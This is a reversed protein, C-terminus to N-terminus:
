MTIPEAGPPQYACHAFNCRVGEPHILKACPVQGQYRRFLLAALLGGAPPALLYVWLSNFVGGFLAPGISRAPNLSTSSLPAEIVVVTAVLLGAALPTFRMLNPRSVFHLILTVLLFTLTLEAAFAGAAGWDGPISAGDHVTRAWNGWTALVVGAGIVAGTIQSAVYLATGWWHLKGLYSFGVTVSPNLHGGSRRGLPSYVVAISAVAFVLGTVLRRLVASGLWSRVSSSSSFDLTVASLGVTMVIATGVMEALAPPGLAKLLDSLRQSSM